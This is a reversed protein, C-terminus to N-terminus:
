KKKKKKNNDDDNDYDEDNEDYDDDSEKNNKKKGTCKKEDSANDDDDEYDGEGEEDEYDGDDEESEGSGQYDTTDIDVGLKNKQDVIELSPLMRFVEDKYKNNGISFPNEKVEIKRLKMGELNKLNKIKEINNGSIKLKELFPFMKPLISFDEGTLYNNNLSLAYLGKISPFNKLSKLGINNLSLHILNKYQELSKKDELDFSDKNEWFDDLVLEDIEIPNHKGIVKQLDEALKSM